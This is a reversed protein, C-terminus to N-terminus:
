LAWKKRQESYNLVLNFIAECKSTYTKRDYSAPLNQDLVDEIVSKVQRQTQSDKYWDLILVKPHSAILRAPPCLGRLLRQLSSGEAQLARTNVAKKEGTALAQWYDLEQENM